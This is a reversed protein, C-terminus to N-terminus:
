RHGENARAAVSSELETPGANGAAFVGVPVAGGAQVYEPTPIVDVLQARQQEPTMAKIREAVEVALADEDVPDIVRQPIRALTAPPILRVSASRAHGLDKMLQPYGPWAYWRVSGDFAWWPRAPGDAIFSLVDDDGTQETPPRITGGNLIADARPLLVDWPFGDGVDWHTGDGTADTYDGHDIVGAVARGRV